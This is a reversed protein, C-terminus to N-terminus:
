GRTLGGGWRVGSVLPGSRATLVFSNGFYGGVRWRVCHRSIPALLSRAVLRGRPGPHEHVVRCTFNAPTPLYIRTNLRTNLAPPALPPLLSCPTYVASSLAVNRPGRGLTEQPPSTVVM